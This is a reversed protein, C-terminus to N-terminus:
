YKRKKVNIIRIRIGNEWFKSKFDRAVQDNSVPKYYSMSSSKKYGNEDEWEIDYM